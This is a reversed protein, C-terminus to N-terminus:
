GLIYKSDFSYREQLRESIPAKKRYEQLQRSLLYSRSAARFIVPDIVCHEHLISRIYRWHSLAKSMKEYHGNWSVSSEGHSNKAYLLIPIVRDHAINMELVPSYGELGLTQQGNNQGQRLIPIVRRASQSGDALFAHVADACGQALQFAGPIEDAM